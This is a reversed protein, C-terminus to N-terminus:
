WHNVVRWEKEPDNLIVEFRRLLEPIIKMMEIGIQTLPTNAVVLLEATCSIHRGICKRAGGGFNLEWLSDM